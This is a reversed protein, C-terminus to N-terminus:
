RAGTLARYVADDRWALMGSEMDADTAYAEIVNLNGSYTTGDGIVHDSVITPASSVWIGITTSNSDGTGYGDRVTLTVTYYGPQEFIHWADNEHSPPSADGWNWTTGVIGNWDPSNPDPYGCSLQCM